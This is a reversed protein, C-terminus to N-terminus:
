RRAKFDACYDTEPAALTPWVADFGPTAQIRSAQSETGAETGAEADLETAALLVSRYTFGPPLHRAVGVLADVHASGAILLVTKGQKTAVAQALSDAMAKDRAIQIRTMPMIQSEPLADCHGKRIAQNQASMAAADLGTDLRTDGMVVRMQARPLNAGLVLVGARM